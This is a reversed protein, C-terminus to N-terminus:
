LHQKQSLSLEFIRECKMCKMESNIDCNMTQKHKTHTHTHARNQPCMYAFRKNEVCIGNHNTLIKNANKETGQIM